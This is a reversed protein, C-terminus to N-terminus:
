SDEANGERRTAYLWYRSTKKFDPKKRILTLNNSWQKSFVDEYKLEVNLHNLTGHDFPNQTIIIMSPAKFFRERMEAIKEPEVNLLSPGRRLSRLTNGMGRIIPSGSSSVILLADDPIDKLLHEIRSGAEENVRHAYLPKMSRHQLIIAVLFIISAAALLKKAPVWSKDTLYGYTGSVVVVVGPLLVYLYRRMWWIDPHSHGSKYLLFAFTGVLTLMVVRNAGKLLFVSLPAVFLFLSLMLPSTVPFLRLLNFADHNQELSEGLPRISLNWIIFCVWFIAFGYSVVSGSGMSGVNTANDAKWRRAFHVLMALMLFLLVFFVCYFILFPINTMEKLTSISFSEYLSFRNLYSRNCLWGVLIGSILTVAGVVILINPPLASWEERESSTLFVFLMSGWLFAVVAFSDLKVQFLLFLSSAIVILVGSLHKRHTELLALILLLMAFLGVQESMMQKSYYFFMPTVCVSVSVLIGVIYSRSLRIGILAMIGASFMAVLTNIIWSVTAVGYVSKAIGLLVPYGFLYSPKGLTSGDRFNWTNRSRLYKLPVGREVYDSIDFYLSGTKWFHNGYTEYNGADMNPSILFTWRPTMLIAVLVVLALTLFSLLARTDISAGSVSEIVVRWRTAALGIPIIMCLWLKGLSFLGFHLLLLGSLMNYALSVGFSFVILESIRQAQDRLSLILCLGPLFFLILLHLTSLIM